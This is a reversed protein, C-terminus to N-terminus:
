LREEITPERTHESSADDLRDINNLYDREMKGRIQDSRCKEEKSRGDEVEITANKTCM